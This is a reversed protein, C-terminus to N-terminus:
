KSKLNGRVDLMRSMFIGGGACHAFLSMGTKIAAQQRACKEVGMWHTATSNKVIKKSIKDRLVISGLVCKGAANFKPAIAFEAYGPYDQVDVIMTVMAVLELNEMRQDKEIAEKTLYLDKAYLEYSAFTHGLYADRNWKCLDFNYYVLGQYNAGYMDSMKEDTLIECGKLIPQPEKLIPIARASELRVTKLSKELSMIVASAVEGLNLKKLNEVQQKMNDYESKQIKYDQM